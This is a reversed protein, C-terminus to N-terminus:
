CESPFTSFTSLWDAFIAFVLVLETPSDVISVTEIFLTFAFSLGWSIPLAPIPIHSAFRANFYCNLLFFAALM